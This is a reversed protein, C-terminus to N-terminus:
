RTTNVNALFDDRVRAAALGADHTIKAENVLRALAWDMSHQENALQADISTLSGGPGILARYTDNIMMTEAAVHRRHPDQAAPILKQAIVARLTEAFLSRGHDGVAAAIRECVGRCRGAPITTLVLLGSSALKLCMDVDGTRRMEEFLVVDPNLRRATEWIQEFILGSGLDYQTVQAATSPHPHELPDAITLLHVPRTKVIIDVLAALTTTKGSATAGAAIILGDECSALDRLTQPLGLEDFDVPPNPIIRFAVTWGNNARISTVRWRSGALLHIKSTDAGGNARACQEVLHRSSRVGSTDPGFHPGHRIWARDQGTALHVDSVGAAAARALIKEAKPPFTTATPTM